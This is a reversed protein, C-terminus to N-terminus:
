CLPPTFPEKEVWIPNIYSIVATQLHPHNVLLHLRNTPLLQVHGAQAWSLQPFGALAPLQHSFLQQPQLVTMSAVVTQGGSMLLCHGRQNGVLGRQGVSLKRQEQILYGDGCQYFCHLQDLILILSFAIFYNPYLAINLLKLFPHMFIIWSTTITSLPHPWNTTNSQLIKEHQM